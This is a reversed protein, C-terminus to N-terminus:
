SGTPLFGHERMWDDDYITSLYFIGTDPIILLMMDGSSLKPSIRLAAAVAAGGSGGAVIGEESALRRATLFAEAESIQVVDDYVSFDVNKPIYETEGIGNILSRKKHMEEGYFANRFISGEPEVGIVKMNPNKEKLFRGIGTITGGTGIGAVLHTVRGDTQEWIEVATTRYHTLPNAPNDNQNLHYAGRESVIRRVTSRYSREDDIDVDSPCVVVEAGLARMMNRRERPVRDTVVVVVRYGLLTGALAVGIGTNGSTSEVLTGGRKM